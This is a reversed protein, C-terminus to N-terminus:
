YNLLLISIKFEYNSGLGNAVNIVLFYKSFCVSRDKVMKSLDTPLSQQKRNHQSMYELPYVCVCVCVVVNQLLSYGGDEHSIYASSQLLVTRRFTPVYGAPQITDYSFVRKTTVM